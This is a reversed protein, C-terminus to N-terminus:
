KRSFYSEFSKLFSERSLGYIKIQKIKVTAGSLIEVNTKSVNFTKSLIKILKANAAGNVPPSAIRIKLAGDTEGAIESKSTRPVVRVTFFISNEKETLDFM